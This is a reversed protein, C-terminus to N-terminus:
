VVEKGKTSSSPRQAFQLTRMHGTHEPDDMVLGRINMMMRGVAISTICQGPFQFWVIDFNLDGIVAILNTVFVVTSYVISDRALVFITRNIQKRYLFTKYATLLMLIGELSLFVAWVHWQPFTPADTLIWCGPLFQYYLYVASSRAFLVQSAIGGAVAVVFLGCLSWTIVKNHGYLSRVRMIILLEACSMNVLPMCLSLRFHFDCFSISLPFLFSPIGIPIFLLATIAYRNLFFLVKPLRWRLTWIWEVEKDLTILHDYLLLALFGAQMYNTIQTGSFVAPADSDFPVYSTSPAAM